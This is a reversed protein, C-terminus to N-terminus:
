CVCRFVGTLVPEVVAELRDDVEESAAAWLFAILDALESDLEESDDVAEEDAALFSSAFGLIVERLLVSFAEGPSLGAPEPADVGRFRKDEVPDSM